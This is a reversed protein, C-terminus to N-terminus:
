HVKCTTPQLGFFFGSAAINIHKIHYHAPSRKARGALTHACAACVGHASRSEVNKDISGRKERTAM